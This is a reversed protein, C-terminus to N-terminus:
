MEQLKFNMILLLTIGASTTFDYTPIATYSRDNKFKADCAPTHDAEHGPM